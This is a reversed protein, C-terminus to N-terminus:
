TESHLRPAEVGSREERGRRRFRRPKKKSEKAAWRRNRGEKHIEEDRVVVADVARKKVFEDVCQARGAVADHHGRGLGFLAPDSGGFGAAPGDVGGGDLAAEAARCPTDVAGRAVANVDRDVVEQGGIERGFGHQAADVHAVVGGQTEDQAAAGDGASKLTGQVTQRGDCEGLLQGLSDVFRELGAVVVGVVVKKCREAVRRDVGGAEGGLHDRGGRRVRENDVVYIEGARGAPIPRAVSSERGTTM